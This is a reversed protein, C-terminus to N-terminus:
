TPCCKAKEGELHGQGLGDGQTAQLTAKSLMTGERPSPVSLGGDRRDRRLRRAQQNLRQTERRCADRCDDCKQRGKALPAGCDCVRERSTAPAPKAAEVTAEVEVPAEVEHWSCAGAGRGGFPCRARAGLQCRGDTGLRRCRGDRMTPADHAQSPASARSPAAADSQRATPAEHTAEPLALPTADHTTM